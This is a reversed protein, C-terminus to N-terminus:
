TLIYIRVGVILTTSGPGGFALAVITSVTLFERITERAPENVDPGRIVLARIALLLHQRLVPATGAGNEAPSGTDIVVLAATGPHISPHIIWNFSNKSSTLYLVQIALMTSILFEEFLLPNKMM